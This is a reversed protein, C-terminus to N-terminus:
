WAAGARPREFELLELAYAPREPWGLLRMALEDAGSYPV